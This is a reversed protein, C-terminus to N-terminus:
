KRGVAMTHYIGWDTGEKSAWGYGMVDASPNMINSCHGPSNIWGTVVASVSYGAAINEGLPTGTFGAQYIRDLPTSGDIGIHDFYNNAAMDISHNLSADSLQQNWTLPSLGGVACPAGNARYQNIETLIQESSYGYSDVNLNQATPELKSLYWSNTNPNYKLIAKYNTISGNYVLNPLTITLDNEVIPTNDAFCINAFFLSLYLVFLKKM